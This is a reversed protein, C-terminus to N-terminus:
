GRKHCREKQVPQLDGIHPLSGWGSDQPQLISSKTYMESTTAAPKWTTSTFLMQIAMHKEVHWQTIKLVSFNTQPPSHTGSDCSESNSPVGCGKSITVRMWFQARHTNLPQGPIPMPPVACVLNKSSPIGRSCDTCIGPDPFLKDGKCTKLSEAGHCWCIHIHQVREM